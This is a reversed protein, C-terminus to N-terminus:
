QSNGVRIRPDIFAYLVDVLLNIAYVGIAITLAVAQIVPYDRQQVADYFLRGIGPWGFVIEVVLLGSIVSKLNVGILTVVSILVNPLAHKVIVGREALGKSHATRIYDAQIVDLLTTRSVRALVAADPIAVAIAPLIVFSLGQLDWISSAAGSIPFLRLHFGFVFQLILGTVFVPLSLGVLAAMTSVYDLASNPRVASLIGIPLGIVIGLLMGLVGVYASWALRPLLMEAVPRGTVLSQGLDLHILSEAWRVLRIPPPEDLGWREVLAATVEPNAMEGQILEAPNGPMVLLVVFVLVAIGFVVPM